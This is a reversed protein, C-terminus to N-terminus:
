RGTKGSCYSTAATVNSEYSVEKTWPLSTVQENATGGSATTYSAFLTGTFNGTVEYRIVRQTSPDDIPQPKACSILFVISAGLITIIQKM